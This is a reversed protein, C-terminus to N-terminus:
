ETEYLFKYINLALYQKRGLRLARGVVQKEILPDVSHVFVIDTIMELDLGVGFLTSDMMMISPKSEDKFMQTIKEMREISGGDLEIIIKPSSVQSYLQALCDYHESFVIIKANPNKDLIENLQSGIHKSKPTFEYPITNSTDNHLLSELLGAETCYDVIKSSFQVTADYKEHLEEKQGLLFQLNHLKNPQDKYKEMFEEVSGHSTELIAKKCQTIQESLATQKDLLQHFLETTYERSNNKKVKSNGYAHVVFTNSYVAKLENTPLVKSLVNDIFLDTITIKHLTIQDFVMYKNVFEPDCICKVSVVDDVKYMGIRGQNDKFLRDISASVFWTRETNIPQVLVNMITDAEDFVVRRLTIGLSSLTTSITNFYLSTTLLIDNKGLISTDFYLNSIDAYSSFCAWSLKNKIFRELSGKWQNFINHPVVILTPSKHNTLNGFLLNVWKPEQEIRTNSLWIMTLIAFTKGCGPKDAMIGHNSKDEIELARHVIAAQHPKLKIDFPLSDIDIRPSTDDLLISMTKKCTYLFLRKPLKSSQPFNPNSFQISHM